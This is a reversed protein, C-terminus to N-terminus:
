HNISCSNERAQRIPAYFIRRIFKHSARLKARVRFIPCHFLFLRAFCRRADCLLTYGLKNGAVLTAVLDSEGMGTAAVVHPGIAKIHSKPLASENISLSNPM